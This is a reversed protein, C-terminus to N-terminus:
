FTFPGDTLSFVGRIVTLSGSNVAIFVEEQVPVYSARILTSYYISPEMVFFLLKM